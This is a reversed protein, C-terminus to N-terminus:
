HRIEWLLPTNTCMGMPNRASGCIGRSTSTRGIASTTGLIQTDGSYEGSHRWALQGGADPALGLGGGRTGGNGPASTNIRGIYRENNSRADNGQSCDKLAESPPAERQRALDAQHKKWWQPYGHFLGLTHQTVKDTPM